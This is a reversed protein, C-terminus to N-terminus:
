VQAQHNTTTGRGKSVCVHGIGLNIVTVHLINGGQEMGESIMLRQQTVQNMKGEAARAWQGVTGGSTHGAALTSDGDRM